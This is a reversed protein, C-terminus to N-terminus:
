KLKLMDPSRFGANRFSDGKPAANIKDLMNQAEAPTIVSSGNDAVQYVPDPVQNTRELEQNNYDRQNTTHVLGPGENHPPQPGRGGPGPNVNGNGNGGGGCGWVLM